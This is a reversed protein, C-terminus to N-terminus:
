MFNECKELEVQIAQQIDKEKKVWRARIYALNNWTGFNTHKYPESETLVVGAGRRLFHAILSQAGVNSTVLVSITLALELQQTPTLCSTCLRKVQINKGQFQKLAEKEQKEFKSGSESDEAFLIIHPEDKPKKRQQNEPLVGSLRFIM